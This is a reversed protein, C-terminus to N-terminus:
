RDASTLTDIFTRGDRDTTTVIQRYTRTEGSPWRELVEVRFRTPGQETITLCYNTKDPITDIGQQISDASSVPAEPLVLDRVQKGSRAVYYAHQFAFIVSVSGVAGGPGNGRHVGGEATNPCRGGM